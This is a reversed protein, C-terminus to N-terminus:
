RTARESAWISVLNLPIVIALPMIFALLLASPWDYKFSNVLSYATLASGAGPILSVFFAIPGCLLWHLGMDSLGNTNVYFLWLWLAFMAVFWALRSVTAVIIM